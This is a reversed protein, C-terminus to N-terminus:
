ASQEALPRVRWESAVQMSSDLLFARKSLDHAGRVVVSVILPSGAIHGIV